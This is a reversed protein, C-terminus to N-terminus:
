TTKQGRDKFWGKKKLSYLDINRDGATVQQKKALGKYDLTKPAFTCESVEKEKQELMKAEIKAQNIKPILFIEVKSVLTPDKDGLLKKRKKDALLSTKESIEPRDKYESRPQYSDFLSKRYEDNLGTFQVRHVYFAKFHTFLKGHDGCRLFFKNGNEGLFLGVIQKDSAHPHDHIQSASEDHAPLAEGDGNIGEIQKQSATDSQAPTPAVPIQRDRVKLGILNLMIVRLTDFTIGGNEEGKALKWM